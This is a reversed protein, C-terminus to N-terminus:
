MASAAIISRDCSAIATKDGFKVQSAILSPLKALIFLLRSGRLNQVFHVESM